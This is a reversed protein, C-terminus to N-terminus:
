EELQRPAAAPVEIANLIDLVRRSSERIVLLREAQPEPLAGHAGRLLLDSSRVIMTLLGRIDSMVDANFRLRMPSMLSQSQLEDLRSKARRLQRNLEEREGKLWEARAQAVESHTQESQQEAREIETTRDRIQQRLRALYGRLYDSENQVALPLVKSRLTLRGVLALLIDNAVPKVLYHEAGVTLAFAEDERTPHNRALLIVPISATVPDTKLQRCLTFGDVRPMLVETMVLDPRERAVMQLAELGDGSELVQYGGEVLQNAILLRSAGNDDVILIKTM